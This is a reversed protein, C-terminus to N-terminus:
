VRQFYYLGVVPEVCEDDTGITLSLLLLGPSTTFVYHLCPLLSIFKSSFVLNYSINLFYNSTVPQSFEMIHLACLEGAKSIYYLIKLPKM